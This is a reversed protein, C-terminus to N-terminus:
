NQTIVSTQSNPEDHNTKDLYIINKFINKEKEIGSKSGAVCFCNQKMVADVVDALARIDEDTTNLIETWEKQLEEPSEGMLYFQQSYIAKTIMDGSAYM